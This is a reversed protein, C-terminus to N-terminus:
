KNGLLRDILPQDEKPDFGSLDANFERPDPHSELEQHFREDEPFLNGAEDRGRFRLAARYVRELPDTSVEHRRLLHLAGAIRDDASLKRRIDRGVRFVTDGLTRSGFRYLLDEIHGTVDAESFVGPYEYRLALGTTEMATRAEHYVSEENIVEAIYRLEPAYLDGLYATAAHGLNHIYLKRDVWAQIPHVPRIQPVEPLTGSWGDA